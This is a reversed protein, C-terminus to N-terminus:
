CSFAISSLPQKIVLTSQHNFKIQHYIQTRIISLFVYLCVLQKWLEFFIQVGFINLRQGTSLSGMAAPRAFRLSIVRWMTARSTPSRLGPYRWESGHRESPRRNGSASSMEGRSCRGSYDATATTFIRWNADQRWVSKGLSFCLIYKLSESSAELNFKNLATLM